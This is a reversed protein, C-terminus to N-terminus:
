SAPAAVEKLRELTRVRRLRRGYYDRASRSFLLEAAHDKLEPDNAVEQTLYAAVEEEGPEVGQQKAVEDLVLDVKLRAEAEPREREMWQERTLQQYALYAEVKLGQHSLRHEIDDLRRELEREVLADPVEVESGEVVAKVVAQEFALEEVRRATEELDERVAKRFDEVNEQKGESLDKVLEDDLEPLHKEKVGRVTAKVKAKKGALRPNGHEAPMEVEAERSEDVAAGPLVSLLETILVGDRVEIETARREEEAVAEGDVEVDLDLVAVDGLQVPREVPELVARRERLEEIRREVLEDDVNTSPKEIKLQALDPLKVEPLVTVTATFRGNRGRELEAVEVSPRGVPEIKHEDLANAVLEPVLLDIVEERLATPGIRAEIIERPAKGPRFGEIKVRQGLRQLVREYAQDVKAAPVDFAMEVQSKPLNKVEVSVQETASEASM